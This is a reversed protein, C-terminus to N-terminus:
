ASLELGMEVEEDITDDPSDGEGTTRNQEESPAAKSETNASITDFSHRSSDDGQEHGNNNYDAPRDHRISGGLM